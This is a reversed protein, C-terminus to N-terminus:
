RSNWNGRQLQEGIERELADNFIGARRAVLREVDRHTKQEHADDILDIIRRFLSRWAPTASASAACNQHSFGTFDTRHPLTAM